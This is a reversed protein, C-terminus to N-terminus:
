YHIQKQHNLKIDDSSAIPTFTKLFEEQAFIEQEYSMFHIKKAKTKDLIEDLVNDFESSNSEALESGENLSNLDNLRFVFM